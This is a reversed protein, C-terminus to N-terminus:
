LILSKCETSGSPAARAAVCYRARKGPPKALACARWSTPKVGHGPGRARLRIRASGRPSSTRHQNERGSPRLERRQHQPRHDGRRAVSSNLEIRISAVLVVLTRQGAKVTIKRRRRAYGTGSVRMTDCESKPGSAIHRGVTADLAPGIGVAVRALHTAKSLADGRALPFSVIRGTGGGGRMALGIEPEAYQALLVVPSAGERRRRTRNAAARAATHGARGIGVTSHGIGTTIRGVTTTDFAQAGAVAAGGFRDAVGRHRAHGKGSPERM